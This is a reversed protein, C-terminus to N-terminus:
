RVGRLLDEDSEDHRVEPLDRIVASRHCNACKVEWVTMVSHGGAIPTGMELLGRCRPCLLSAGPTVMLAQIYATDQRSFTAPTDRSEADTM